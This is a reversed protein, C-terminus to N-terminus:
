LRWCFKMLGQLTQASAWSKCAKVTESVHTYDFLKSLGVCMLFIPNTAVKNQGNAAGSQIESKGTGRQTYAYM